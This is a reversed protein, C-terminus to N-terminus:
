IFSVYVCPFQHVREKTTVLGEQHVVTGAQHKYFDCIEKKKICPWDVYGFNEPWALAIGTKEMVTDSDTPSDM